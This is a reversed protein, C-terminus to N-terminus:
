GFKQLLDDVADFVQSLEQLAAYKRRFAIAERIANGLIEDRKVPDQLAEATSEYVKVPKGDASGELAPRTVVSYAKVPSSKPSEAYIVEISHSLKRAQHLRYKEGAIADDWEFHRHLPNRKPRAREVVAAATIHGVEKRVAELEKYAGEASGTFRSGRKWQIVHGSM